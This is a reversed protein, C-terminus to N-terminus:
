RPPRLAHMHKGGKHGVAVPEFFTPAASTSRAVVWMPYDRHGQLKARASKFFFPRRGEIDYATIVVDTVADSLSADGLALRLSRELQDADYKEDLVGGITRLKRRREAHFIKPCEETYFRVVDSAPRGPGGDEGPLALFCAIIGGTSTGAILDFLEATRRGTREEIEALVLAPILGRVGGGDLALLRPPRPGPTV